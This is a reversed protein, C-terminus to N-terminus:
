FILSESIAAVGWIDEDYFGYIRLTAHDTDTISQSVLGMKIACDSM